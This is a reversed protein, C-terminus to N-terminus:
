LYKKIYKLMGRQYPAQMVDPNGNDNGEIMEFGNELVAIDWGVYRIQPVVLCAELVFEKLENWHPIEKGIMQVGSDPHYYIDGLPLHSFGSGCIIGHEIDIPFSIGGAHSNDVVKGARGVRLAASIIHPVGANDLLTYVRVTNVSTKNCEALERHQTVFEELINKNKRLEEASEGNWIHVGRGSYMANPKVIVNEHEDLFKKIEEDSCNLASIWDRQIFHSFKENFLSKDEFYKIYDKNNYTTEYKRRHRHTYFEKRWNYNGKYFGYQVYEGPTIGYCFHCWVLSIWLYLKTIGYKKNVIKFNENVKVLANKYLEFYAM